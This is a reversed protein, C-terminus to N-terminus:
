FLKIICARSFFIFSKMKLRQSGPEHKRNRPWKIHMYGPQAGELHQNTGAVDCLM